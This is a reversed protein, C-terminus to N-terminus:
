ICKKEKKRKQDAVKKVSGKKLIHMPANYMMRDSNILGKSSNKNSNQNSKDDKVTKISLNQRIQKSTKSALPPVWGFIRKFFGMVASFMKRIAGTVVSGITFFYVIFGLTSGAIFYFRIEGRAFLLSFTIIVIAYIIIFICDEIFVLIRNHPILIRIVRFVDYVIGIPFGLLCSYLFIKAQESVSFFTELKEV